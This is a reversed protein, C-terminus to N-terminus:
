YVRRALPLLRSSARLGSAEIARINLDFGLRHDDTPYIGVGAGLGAAREGEAVLLMSKNRIADIWHLLDRTENASVLLIRCGDASQKMLLYRVRIHQQRVAKGDILHLGGQPQEGVVCIDFLGPAEDPWIVFQAFNYLYATRLQDSHNALALRSCALLALLVFSLFRARM